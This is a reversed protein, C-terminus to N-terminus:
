VGSDDEVHAKVACGYIPAGTAAQLAQALPSHDIHHHTIVIATVTEGAVAAQIAALHVLDDPGPDIVAVEGHGVIYTGTGTFTFPGPNKAIVRRILPSVQDARGYEFDIKRVYPIM